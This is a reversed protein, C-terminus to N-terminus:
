HPRRDADRRRRMHASSEIGAESSNPSRAVEWSDRPPGHAKRGRRVVPKGKESVCVCPHAHRAVFVDYMPECAWAIFAQRLKRSPGFPSTRLFDIGRVGTFLPLFLPWLM